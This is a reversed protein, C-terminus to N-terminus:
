ESGPEYSVTTDGVECPDQGYRVCELGSPQNRELATKASQAQARYSGFRFEIVTRTGVRFREIIRDTHFQILDGFFRTLSDKNVFDSHGTIVLVRSAQPGGSLQRPIKVRNYEGTVALGRIQLNTSEIHELYKAAAEPNFFIVKAAATDHRADPRNIYTAWVRGIGSITDLLEAYTINPPLNRLWLSCNEHNALHDQSANKETHKGLYRTSFRSPMGLSGTGDQSFPLAQPNFKAELVASMPRFCQNPPMIPDASRLSLNPLERYGPPDTRTPPGLHYSTSPGSTSPSVMRTALTSSPSADSAVRLARMRQSVEEDQNIFTRCSPLTRPKEQARPENPHSTPMHKHAFSNGPRENSNTASYPVMSLMSRPTYLDDSQGDIRPRTPSPGIGIISNGPFSPSLHLSPSPSANHSDSSAFDGRLILRNSLQHHILDAVLPSQFSRTSEPLSWKSGLESTVSSAGNGSLLDRVADAVMGKIM